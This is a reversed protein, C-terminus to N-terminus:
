SNINLIINSIQSNSIWSILVQKLSEFIYVRDFLKSIPSKIYILYTYAYIAKTYIKKAGASLRDQCKGVTSMYTWM